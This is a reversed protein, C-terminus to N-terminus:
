YVNKGDEKNISYIYILMPIALLFTGDVYLMSYFLKVILFIFLFDRLTM